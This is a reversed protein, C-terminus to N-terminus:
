GPVYIYIYFAPTRIGALCQRSATQLCLELGVQLWAWTTMGKHRPALTASQTGLGSGRTRPASLKKGSPAKPSSGHLLVPMGLASTKSPRAWLRPTKPAHGSCLTKKLPASTKKGLYPLGPRLWDLLRDTMTKKTAKRPAPNQRKGMQTQQQARQRSPKPFGFGGKPPKNRTKPNRPPM